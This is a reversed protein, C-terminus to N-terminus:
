GNKQAKKYAEYRERLAVGVTIEGQQPTDSFRRPTVTDSFQEIMEEITAEDLFDFIHWLLHKENM